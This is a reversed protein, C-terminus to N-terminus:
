GHDDGGLLMRLRGRIRYLRGEVARETIGMERAIQATSQLYYYKRFFLLRDHQPLSALTDLLAQKQEKQLIYEEPTPAPSRMDPELPVTPEQQKRLRNLAVSRTVATLWAIWSGKEPDFLSIRDWVRMAADSLCEEQEQPDSLIPHIIYRMLPGYHRMLLDAGAPDHSRILQVIDM